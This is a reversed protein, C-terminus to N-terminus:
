DGIRQRFRRAIGRRALPEDVRQERQKSVLGNLLADCAVARQSADKKVEHRQNGRLMAIV